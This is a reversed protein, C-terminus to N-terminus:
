QELTIALKGQAHMAGLAALADAAREFPYREQIPVRLEGAALLGGLRDLTAPQSSAMIPLRGAGQGIGPLPSAARGVPTLAAAYAGFADPPTPFSISSRASETPIASRVASAVDGDRDVLEAAGLGRLHERDHARATAIVHAGARAALQVAFSGVGGTAGVTLITEGGQLELADVASLATSTSAYDHASARDPLRRAHRSVDRQDDDVHEVRVVV